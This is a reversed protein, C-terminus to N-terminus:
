VSKPCSNPNVVNFVPERGPNRVTNGPVCSGQVNFFKSHHSHHGHVCTQQQRLLTKQYQLYPIKSQTRFLSPNGPHNRCTYKSNWALTRRPNSSAEPIPSAQVLSPPIGCPQGNLITNITAKYKGWQLYISGTPPTLGWNYASLRLHTHASGAAKSAAALNELLWIWATPWAAAGMLHIRILVESATCLSTHSQTIEPPPSLHFTWSSTRSTPPCISVVNRCRAEVIAALITLSSSLIGTTPASGKPNPSVSCTRREFDTAGAKCPISAEEM